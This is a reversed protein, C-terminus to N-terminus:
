NGEITVTSPLAANSVGESVGLTAMGAAAIAMLQEDTLDTVAAHELAIPGGGPGSLEGKSKNLMGLYDALNRLAADRDRTLVKIGDKTQVAGNYLYKSAGKLSRTDAVKVYSVGRGKCTECKPNPPLGDEVVAWCDDCPAVVVSTLDAPDAIAIQMWQYLVWQENLGAVSALMEKQAEIAELVEADKLLRWGGTEAGNASYGADIYAKTGNLHKCYETVFRARRGTLMTWVM